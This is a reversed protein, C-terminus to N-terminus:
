RFAPFGARRGIRVSADAGRLAPAPTTPNLANNTPRGVSPSCRTTSRSCGSCWLWTLALDTASLSCISGKQLVPLRSRMTPRDTPKNVQSPITQATAGLRERLHQEALRYDLLCRVMVRSRAVIREPKNVFVSSALFRPDKLLAFGREVRHQERDTQILEQDALRTPDLVSSHSSIRRDASM